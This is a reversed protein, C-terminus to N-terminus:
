LRRTVNLGVLLAHEQYSCVFVMLWGDVTWGCDLRLPRHDHWWISAFALAKSVRALLWESGQGSARYWVRTACIIIFLGGRLRLCARAIVAM